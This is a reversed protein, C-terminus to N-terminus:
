LENNKRVQRKNVVLLMAILLSLMINNSVIDLTICEIIFVVIGMKGIRFVTLEDISSVSKKKIFQIIARTLILVGMLGTEVLYVTLECDVTSYGKFFSYEKLYDVSISQYGTGFLGKILNNQYYFPWNMLTGLRQGLSGDDFGYIQLRSFRNSIFNGIYPFISPEFIIICISCLFVLIIRQLHRSTIRKSHLIEIILLVLTAIWCIRSQSVLIQELLLVWCFLNFIKNKYPIFRILIIGLVLICGYYNYHLFFSSPQYNVTNNMTEMWVKSDIQVLNVMFNYRLVCEIFGYLASIFILLRLAKLMVIRKDYEDPIILVIFLPLCVYKLILEIFNKIGVYNTILGIISILVYYAVFYKFGDTRSFKLTKSFTGLSIFGIVLMAVLLFIEEVGIYTTIIMCIWITPFLYCKIKRKNRVKIM